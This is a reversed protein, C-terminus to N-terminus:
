NRNITLLKSNQKSIDVTDLKRVVVTGKDYRLGKSGSNKKKQRKEACQRLYARKTQRSMTAVSM